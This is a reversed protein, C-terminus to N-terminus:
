PASTSKDDKDKEAMEAAKILTEVDERHDPSLGGRMEVFAMKAEYAKMRENMLELCIICM